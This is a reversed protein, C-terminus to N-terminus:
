KKKKLEAILLKEKEELLKYFVEKGDHGASNLPGSYLKRMRGRSTPIALIEDYNGLTIVKQDLLEDLIAEIDSVRDILLARYKDVFHERDSSGPKSDLGAIEKVLKDADKHCDIERLLDEVVGPAREETFTSVLVDAVVLFSKGEVRNRKVQPEERRDVLQDCFDDFNEKSLNALTDKIVKKVTKPAM